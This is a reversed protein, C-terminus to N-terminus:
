PPSALWGATNKAWRSPGALAAARRDRAGSRASRPVKAASREYRRAGAARGESGRAQSRGRKPNPVSKGQHGSGEAGPAAPMDGPLPRPPPPSLPQAGAGQPLRWPADGKCRRHSASAAGQLRPTSCLRLVGGSIRRPRPRSAGAREAGTAAGRAQEGQGWWICSKGAVWASGISKAGQMAGNDAPVWQPVM